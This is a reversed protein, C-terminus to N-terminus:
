ARIPMAGTLQAVAKDFSFFGEFKAERAQAVYEAKRAILADSFDLSKGQISRSGEYDKLASWIVQSDEFIFGQDGILARVVVCIKSKDFGYRKGMLTWVTEALVVDTVLAPRYSTILKRARRFQGPDDALLYRLLVNTDVAIM